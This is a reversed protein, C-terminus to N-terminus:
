TGREIPQAIFQRWKVFLFSSRQQFVHPGSAIFIDLHDEIPGFFVHPVEQVIMRCVRKAVLLLNRRQLQEFHLSVRHQHVCTTSPKEVLQRAQFSHLDYL